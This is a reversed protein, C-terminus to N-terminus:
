PISYWCVDWGDSRAQGAWRAAFRRLLPMFRRGSFAQWVNTIMTPITMIALADGLPLSLTMVGIAIPPLGIGIAGKAIGALIFAGAVVLMQIETM